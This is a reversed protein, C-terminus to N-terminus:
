YDNPSGNGTDGGVTNDNISTFIIPQAATGVADLTGEVELSCGSSVMRSAGGYWIGPGSAKIVTGPAISLTIGSPVDLRGLIEWPDTEADLSSTTGIAGALALGKGTEQRRTVESGIQM